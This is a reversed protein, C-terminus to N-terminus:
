RYVYTRLEDMMSKPIFQTSLLNAVSRWEWGLHVAAFSPRGGMAKVLLVRSGLPAHSSESPLDLYSELEADLGTETKIRAIIAREDDLERASVGLTPFEVIGPECEVLLASPVGTIRSILILHLTIAGTL